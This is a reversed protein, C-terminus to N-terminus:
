RAAKEVPVIVQVLTEEMYVGPAIPNLAISKTFTRNTGTVDIPMTYAFRIKGLMDKAGVVICYEPTVVVKGSTVSYGWRPRGVFIPKITLKKAVMGEAPLMKKLFQMEDESGNNLENVIYFWLFVALVLATLKLGIDKKFLGALHELM